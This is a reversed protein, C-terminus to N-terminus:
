PTLVLKGSTKRDQLDRHAEAAHRLPYSGGIKFKLRGATLDGFIDSARRALDPGEIYDALTPRTVYLSGLSNLKQLDFPPVPGSAAGFLAVLGRKRLSALSREFTTAGVGDYVVDVGKGETLERVQDDFRDYGIAHAAGAALAADTKESNSTTAIVKGGRAAIMQTLLLGVGGAAAHVLAVTGPEVRFTDTVLYHATMGQLMAACALQPDLGSPVKVARNAPMVVQEAYSGLTAPWAVLDGIAFDRVQEGVAIVEGAGDMGPTYPLSMKYAGSRQYTDIYNVGAAIVRVLIQDAFPEPAAIEEFELVEPGGHRHVRIAKM